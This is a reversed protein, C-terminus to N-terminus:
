HAYLKMSSRDSIQHSKANIRRPVPAFRLNLPLAPTPIHLPLDIPSLGAQELIWRGQPTGSLRAIEGPSGHTCWLTLDDAYFIHSLQPVQQLLYALQAMGLNFLTPSLVAGQPAGRTLTIPPSTEAEIRFSATRDKLFNLIYTDFRHGCGTERVSALIHDHGICDFAKRVDVTVLAHVRIHINVGCYLRLPGQISSASPIDLPEYQLDRRIYTSVLPSGTEQLLLIQPQLDLTLLWQHLPTRNTKISRCNWQIVLFSIAKAMVKNHNPRPHSPTTALSPRKTTSIPTPPTVPPQSAPRLTTPLEPTGPPTSSPGIRSPSAPTLEPALSSSPAENTPNTTPIRTGPTPEMLTTARPPLVAPRLLSRQITPQSTQHTPSGPPPSQHGWEATRPLFSTSEPTSAQQQITQQPQRYHQLPSPAHQNMDTPTPQATRTAAARQRHYDRKHSSTPRPTVRPLTNRLHLRQDYAAKISAKDKQQQVQCAPGFSPHEGGCHYCWPTCPHPAQQQQLPTACTPCRWFTPAESCNIARHGYARCRECKAAKPQHPRCRYEVREFLVTYPVSTGEFIILVPESAGMMRATIISAQYSELSTMLEDASLGAKVGHIVGKCSNLPAAFYPTVHHLKNNIRIDCVQALRQATSEYATNLLIVRQLLRIHITLDRVVVTHLEHQPRPELRQKRHKGPTIWGQNADQQLYEMSPDSLSDVEITRPTQTNSPSHHTLHHLDPASSKINRLRPVDDDEEGPQHAPGCVPAAVEQRRRAGAASKPRLRRASIASRMASYAVGLRDLTASVECWHEEVRARSARMSAKVALTAARLVLLLGRSGLLRLDNIDDAKCNRTTVAGTKTEAGIAAQPARAAKSDFLDDALSAPERRRLSTRQHRENRWRKDGTRFPATNNASRHRRQTEM